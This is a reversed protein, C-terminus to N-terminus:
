TLTLTILYYFWVCVCVEFFFIGNLVGCWVVERVQQQNSVRSNVSGGSQSFGSLRHRPSATYYRPSSYMCYIFSKILFVYQQTRNLYVLMNFGGEDLHSIFMVM